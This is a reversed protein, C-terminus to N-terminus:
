HHSNAVKAWEPPYHRVVSFIPREKREGNNQSQDVEANRSRHLTNHQVDFILDLPLTLILHVLPLLHYSSFVLLSVTITMIGTNM